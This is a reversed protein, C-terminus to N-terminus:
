SFDEPFMAWYEEAATTADKLSGEDVMSNVSGEQFTQLDVNSTFVLSKM